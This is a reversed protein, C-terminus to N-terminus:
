LNCIQNQLLTGVTDAFQDLRRIRTFNRGYITRAAPLDEDEGTFVCVVAAGTRSLSRVEQATDVVGVRDAYDRFGGSRAIKIVDNPKADSLLIVLRHECPADELDRGLARVALGDRNCGTTFYHFIMENRDTEGYDRFRTLVTYGSLSCFATVRVPIGCRTLSEAIMYGQASVTEQRSIQSTSADLLLDVCLAGPDGRLIRTFVKDDGLCEARWVRAADLLGASTRVTEPQLHTQMANRIRATLRAVTMRNVTSNAEYAAKNKEMQRLAARRQEAAFGRAHKDLEAGGRAYYLNCGKHDGTCLERELRQVKDAPYLSAGFYSSIYARLAEESQALTMEGLRRQPAPGGGGEVAQAHEGFGFGFERLSPLPAKNKQRRGFLRLRRVARLKEPDEADAPDAPAYGFWVALTQGLRQALAAGDLEGPLDLAALLARDSGKLGCDRGLIERCRGATLVHVLRDSPTREFAALTKRAYSQRLAAMAPRGAQERAFAASELGLWALQEYIRRDTLGEFSAFLDELAGGWDRRVCGAVTNWYLDARGEADYTKLEPEFEYEEAATWVQNKARRQEHEQIEM